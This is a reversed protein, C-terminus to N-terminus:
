HALYAARQISQTKLTPVMYNGKNTGLVWVLTGSKIRIHLPHNKSGMKDQKLQIRERKLSLRTKLQSLLKVEEGICSGHVTVGKM